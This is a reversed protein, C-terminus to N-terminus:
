LSRNLLRGAPPSVKSYNGLSQSQKQLKLSQVIRKELRDRWQASQTRALEFVANSNPLKRAKKLLVFRESLLHNFTDFRGHQFSNEMREEIQELQELQTMMVSGLWVSEVM